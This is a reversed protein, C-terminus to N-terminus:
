RSSPLFVRTTQAAHVQSLDRQGREEQCIYRHEAPVNAAGRIARVFGEAQECECRCQIEDPSLPALQRESRPHQTDSRTCKHERLDHQQMARWQQESHKGYKQHGTADLQAASPTADDQQQKEGQGQESREVKISSIWQPQHGRFDARADQLADPQLDRAGPHHQLVVAGENPHVRGAGSHAHQPHPEEHCCAKRGPLSGGCPVGERKGADGDHSHHEGIGEAGRNEEKRLGATDGPWVPRM